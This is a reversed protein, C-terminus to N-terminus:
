ERAGKATQRAAPIVRYVVAETGERPIPFSAVREFRRPSQSIRAEAIREVPSVWGAKDFGTRVLLYDCDELRALAPETVLWDVIIVPAGARQLAMLRASLAVSSPNLHPLNVVVGLLPQPESSSTPPSVTEHPAPRAPRRAVPLGSAPGLEAVTRVIATVSWDEASPRHDFGYYNRALVMWRFRPMDIYCGMGDRPWQANHFSLLAWAAILVMALARITRVASSRRCWLLLREDALWSVSLLAAAPLVPTTYRMDKNAILTFTLIGGGLWLWLIASDRHQRAISYFLGGAFLLGFPVQMQPSVLGFLYNVNSLFSFLPAENESIAAQRNVHYIEIVDHLHPGYWIAAVALAVFAALMLNLRSRRPGKILVQVAVYLAPVWIFFVFTQKTLAGLGVAAGFALARGTTSFDGARVLLAVTLAVMAILPYDLFADHLLWAPFHYCTALLAAVVAAISPARGEGAGFYLRRALWEVSLLLIALSVINVLIGTVRSAGLIVFFIASVLHVLPAYYHSQTFFDNFFEKIDGNALLHYYDYAASIHDAPDWPPPTQDLVTWAITSGSLAVFVAALLLKNRLPM